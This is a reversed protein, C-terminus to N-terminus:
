SNGADENGRHLLAGHGAHLTRTGWPPVVAGTPAGPWRESDCTDYGQCWCGEGETSMHWLSWCGLSGRLGVRCGLSGQPGMRCCFQPVPQTEIDWLGGYGWMSGRSHLLVSTGATRFLLHRDRQPEGPTPHQQGCGGGQPRQRSGGPASELGGSKPLPEAHGQGQDTGRRARRLGLAGPCGCLGEPFARSPM